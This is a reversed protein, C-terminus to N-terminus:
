RRWTARTGTAPPKPVPPAEVRPPRAPQATAAERKAAEKVRGAEKDSKSKEILRSLTDEVAIRIEEPIVARKVSDPPYEADM